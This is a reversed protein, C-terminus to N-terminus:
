RDVESRDVTETVSLVNGDPDCFWAVKDGGPTTWVGLDDQEMGDFRRFTVGSSVLRRIADGIDAVLWGLVTYPAAALQDVRTVRLQTGGADFVVALPNADLEALGLATGYFARSRELDTSAAFAVLRATGLVHSTESM